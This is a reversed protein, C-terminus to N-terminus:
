SQYGLTQRAEQATILGAAHDLRIRNHLRDKDEQLVSVHSLDFSVESPEFETLFQDTLTAALDNWLPILFEEVAAERAERFNSYTSHELGSGLGLIMAPIGLLSTIREEPLKSLRDLALQEPSFGVSEVSAPFNPVIVSGAKSASTAEQIKKALNEADAPSIRSDRVSVMLSPTPSKLISRTYQAALNDAAIHSAASALRSFGKLPNYPDHGERDHIIDRRDVKTVGTALHLEFHSIVNARNHDAIPEVIQHPLWDLGIIKGEENRLKLLYANGSILRSYALASLMKDGSLGSRDEEALQGQPHRLIAQALRHNGAGYRGLSSTFSRRSQDNLPRVIPKAQSVNRTAWGLCAMVISNQTAEQESYTTPM